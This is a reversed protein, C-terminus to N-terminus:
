LKNHIIPVEKLYESKFAEDAVLDKILRQYALHIMGGNLFVMNRFLIIESGEPIVGEPTKYAKKFFYKTQKTVDM